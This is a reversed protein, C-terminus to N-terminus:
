PGTPTYVSYGDLYAVSFGLHAASAHQLFTQDVESGSVLVYPAVADAQVETWYPLYRTVGPQAYDGVVGCTLAERTNFNLLDCTWYDSYFRTIGRNLLDNAFTADRGNLAVVSPVVQATSVAGLLLAVAILGGALPRWAVKVGGCMMRWRSDTALSEDGRRWEILPWLVAPVVILLGILYRGSGPNNAATPSAVYAAITLWAALALLLRALSLTPFPTSATDGESVGAVEIHRFQSQKRRAVLHARLVQFPRYTAMALLGLYILSWAGGVVVAVLTSFTAAGYLPMATVSFLSPMGTATPLTLLLPAELQESLMHWGGGGANLSRHLFLFVTVPNGTRPTSLTYIIAPLFGIAFGALPLAAVGRILERWCTVALLLGSLLAFPAVIPYTYLGLGASLGWGLYAALRLARQTGKLPEASQSLALWTALAVMTAGFALIDIKGGDALLEIQVLFPSGLVLVALSALAVRRSYLQHALWFTSVMFIAYFFIMGLRLAVDSVGFLRFALAGLYAEGVGMYNQGYLYIPRDGRFYIHMAELGMTGEESDSHPWGILTLSLRLAVGCFILAVAALVYRHRKLFAHLDFEM